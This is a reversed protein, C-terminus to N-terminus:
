WTILMRQKRRACLMFEAGPTECHNIPPDLRTRSHHEPKIIQTPQRNVGIRATSIPSSDEMVRLHPIYAIRYRINLVGTAIASGLRAANGSM